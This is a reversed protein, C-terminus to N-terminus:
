RARASIAKRERKLHRLRRNAAIVAERDNARHARRIVDQHTEIKMDIRELDQAKSM